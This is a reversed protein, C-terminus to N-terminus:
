NPANVRQYYLDTGQYRPVYWDNGCRHYNVGGQTTKECSAPLRQSTGPIVGTGSDWDADPRSEGGGGHFSAGGGFGGGGGGGGFGGGGGGGGGGGHGGRASVDIAGVIALPLIVSLALLGQLIRNHM